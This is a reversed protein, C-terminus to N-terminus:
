ANVDSLIKPIFFQLFHPTHCVRNELPKHPPLHVFNLLILGIKVPTVVLTVDGGGGVGGSWLMEFKEGMEVVLKTDGVCFVGVDGEQFSDWHVVSADVGGCGDEGYSPHFVCWERGLEVGVVTNVLGDVDEPVKGRVGV